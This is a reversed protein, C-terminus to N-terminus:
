PKCVLYFFQSSFYNGTAKTWGEKNLNNLNNFVNLIQCIMVATMPTQFTTAEMQM